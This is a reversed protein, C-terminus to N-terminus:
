GGNRLSGLGLSGRSGAVPASAVEPEEVIPGESFLRLRLEAALKEDRRCLWELIMAAHEKEEDRNHVLIARLEPDSTADIRQEYWDIAEIEEMLSVFARHRDLTESRLKEPPEHLGASAGAM